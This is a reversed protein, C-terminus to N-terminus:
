TVPIINDTGVNEVIKSEKPQEQIDTREDITEPEESIEGRLIKVKREVEETPTWKSFEYWLNNVETLENAVGFAGKEYNKIIGFIVTLAMVFIYTFLKVTKQWLSIEAMDTFLGGAIFAVGIMTLASFILGRMARKRRFWDLKRIKGAKDYQIETTSWKLSDCTINTRIKRYQKIFRKNKFQWWRPRYAYLAKESSFKNEVLFELKRRETELKNYIALFYVLYVERERNKLLLERHEEYKAPTCLPDILPNGKDDTKIKEAGDNDIITLFRKKNLGTQLAQETIGQKIAWQTLSLGIALAGISTLNGGVNKWYQETFLEGIEGYTLIVLLIMGLCATITGINNRLFRIM